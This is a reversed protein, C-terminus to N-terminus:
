KMNLFAKAKAEDFHIPGREDFNYDAVLANLAFKLNILTADSPLPISGGYSQWLLTYAAPEIKLLDHRPVGDWVVLTGGNPEIRLVFAQKKDFM